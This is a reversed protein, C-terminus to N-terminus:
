STVSLKRQSQEGCKPDIRNTVLRNEKKMTFKSPFIFCVTSGRLAFSFSCESDEFYCFM